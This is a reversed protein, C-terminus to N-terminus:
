HFRLLKGHTEWETYQNLPRSIPISEWVDCKGDKRSIYAESQADKAINLIKIGPM